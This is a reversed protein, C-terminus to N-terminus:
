SCEYYTFKYQLPKALNKVPFYMTHVINCEIKGGMCNRIDKPDLMAMCIQFVTFLNIKLVILDNGVKLMADLRNHLKM